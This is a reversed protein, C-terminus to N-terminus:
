PGTRPRLIRMTGVGHAVVKGDLDEIVAELAMLSGGARVVRGKGVLTGRGPEVYNITLSVTASSEGPKLLSRTAVGFAADLLSAVAGGHVDGRINGLDAHPDLRM